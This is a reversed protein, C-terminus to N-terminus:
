NENKYLIKELLYNGILISIFIIGFFLIQNAVKAVLLSLNSEQYFFNYIITVVGSYILVNNTNFPLVIMLTKIFIGLIFMGIIVGKLAFNAYLESMLPFNWSTKQDLVSHLIGYRKGWFNGWEERPKNKNIFRPIIMKHLYKYSVGNFFPVEQPTAAIVVQLVVSSHFFRHKQYALNDKEIITALGKQSLVKSNLTKLTVSINDVLVNVEENEQLQTSTDQLQTSTDQDIEFKLVENERLNTVSITSIKTNIDVIETEIIYRGITPDLTIKNVSEYTNDVVNYIRNTLKTEKFPDTPKDCSRGFANGPKCTAARLDDKFSHLVFLLLFILGGTALNIKKSKQYNIAYVFAILLFPFVMSAFSLEIIFIFLLLFLNFILISKKKTNLYKIQFYALLFYLLPEKLQGLFTAQIYKDPYNIYYFIIVVSFFFIVPYEYKEFKKFTYLKKKLNLYNPAFYGASFSIIGSSIILILFPLLELTKSYEYAGWGHEKYYQIYQIKQEFYFYCTYTLFYFFIILPYIPFYNKEKESLLYLYFLFYNVFFLLSLYFFTSIEIKNVTFLIFFYFVTVCFLLKLFNRLGYNDLILFNKM